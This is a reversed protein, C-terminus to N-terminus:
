HTPNSQNKEDQITNDHINDILLSLVRVEVEKSGIDIKKQLLIHENRPLLFQKEIFLFSSDVKVELKLNVKKHFLSDFNELKLVAYTYLLAKPEKKLAYVEINDKKELVIWTEGLNIRKEQAFCSFTQLSISFFLSLITISILKCVRLLYANNKIRLFVSNIVNFDIAIRPDVPDIPVCARSTILAFEEKNETLM